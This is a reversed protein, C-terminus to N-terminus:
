CPKNTCIERKSGWHLTISDEKRRTCPPYMQCPLKAEQKLSFFPSDSYGRVQKKLERLEWLWHWFSMNQPSVPKGECRRWTTVQTLQYNVKQLVVMILSSYCSWQTKILYLTISSAIELKNKSFVLDLLLGFSATPQIQAYM